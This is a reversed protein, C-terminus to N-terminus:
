CHLHERLIKVERLELHRAVVHVRDLAGVDPKAGCHVEAVLLVVGVNTQLADVPVTEDLCAGVGVTVEIHELVNAAKLGGLVEFLAELKVGEKGVVLLVVRVLVHM